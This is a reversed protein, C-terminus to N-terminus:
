LRTSSRTCTALVEPAFLVTVHNGELRTVHLNPQKAIWPAAAKDSIFPADRTAKKHEALFVEAPVALRELAPEVDPGFFCDVADEACRKVDARPRLTSTSGEEIIRHMVPLLDPRGAMMKGIRAKKAAAEVSPWDKDLASMQKTFAFRVTAPRMFFPLAPRIGGDVLVLKRVRNPAEQAVLPALYAGMSHGIVVVDHLDLADMVRAVDRAHARLGTPGPMGQADGRGRLDPSLFHTGPLADAIPGWSSASGGLGALAVVTQDGGPWVTVPLGAVLQRDPTRVTM